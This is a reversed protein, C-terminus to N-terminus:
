ERRIQIQWGNFTWTCMCVCIGGVRGQTASETFRSGRNFSCASTCSTFLNTRKGAQLSFPTVVQRSLVTFVKCNLETTPQKQPMLTQRKNLPNGHYKQNNVQTISEVSSCINSRGALGWKKTILRYKSPLHIWNMDVFPNGAKFFGLFPQDINTRHERNAPVPSQNRKNNLDTYQM